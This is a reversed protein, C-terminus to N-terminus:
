TGCRKLVSRTVSNAFEDLLCRVHYDLKGGPSNDAKTCLLNFLQSYMIAVLFNFTADTDSIISTYLLCTIDMPNIHQESNSAIRILQGQLASVLPYYEGEPDCIIIDDPTTLFCDLIERKVSFSKGAGPTGLILGNPNKLRSRNARIMNGSLMNIGYYTAQGDQFLEKTTFPVFIAIGSTHMERRVPIENYCLPLTSLLTQEQRYDYPFM